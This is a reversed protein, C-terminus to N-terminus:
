YAKDYAKGEGILDDHTNAVFLLTQCLNIEEECDFEVPLHVDSQV